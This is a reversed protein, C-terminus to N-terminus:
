IEDNVTVPFSSHTAMVFLLFLMKFSCAKTSGTSNELELYVLNM